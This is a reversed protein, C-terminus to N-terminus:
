QALPISDTSSNQRRRAEKMEEYERAEKDAGRNGGGIAHERTMDM